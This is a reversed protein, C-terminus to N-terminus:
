RKPARSTRPESRARSSVVQTGKQLNIEQLETKKKVQSNTINKKLRLIPSLLLSSQILNWHPSLVYENALQTVIAPSWHSARPRILCTDTPQPWTGNEDPGTGQVTFSGPARPGQPLHALKLSASGNQTKDGKEQETSTFAEYNPAPM